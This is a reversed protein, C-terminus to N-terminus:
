TRRKGGGAPGDGAVGMVWGFGRQEGGFGSATPPIAFAAAVTWGVDDAPIGILLCQDLADIVGSSCLVEHPRIHDAIDFPVASLPHILWRGCEGGVFVPLATADVFGVQDIVVAFPFEPIDGTGILVVVEHVAVGFTRVAASVPRRVLDDKCR